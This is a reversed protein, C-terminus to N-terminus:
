GDDGTGWSPTAEGRRRAAQACASLLAQLVQLDDSAICVCVAFALPIAQGPPTLPAFGLLRAGLDYFPRMRRLTPGYAEVIDQKYAAQDWAGMVGAIFGARQAIFM